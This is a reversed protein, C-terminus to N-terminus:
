RRRGPAAHGGARRARRGSTARKRRVCKGHRNRVQGRRCRVSPHPKLAPAEVPFAVPPVALLSVPAPLVLVSPLGGTTFTVPEGTSSGYGSAIQIRYAYTTGPQLGTVSFSEATPTLATGSVVIGYRTSAGAYVGLEFSYTASQGGPNVSGTLTASTVGVSSPAGTIAAPVPAAATTFSAQPGKAEGGELKKNLEHEDNAILRYRYTTAPRLGRAEMTTALPGYLSSAEASTSQAGPCAELDECAGYQFEYTTDANEPNLEGSLVVSSSSIFSASQGGFIRPPVLPTRVSATESTLLEPAKVNADEGALRAFLTANPRLGEAPTSLPVFPEQEGESKVNVIPVPKTVEGLGRTPGWEFWAQTSKVGWADVMGNIACNLTADTETDPGPKCALAGMVLEGISVNSYAQVVGGLSVFLHGASDFAMGYALQNEEGPITFNSILHGTSAHFFAGFPGTKGGGQGRQEFAAVALDGSADLAIGTVNAVEGGAERPTVPFSGAQQGAPNFALITWTQDCLAYVDGSADVAVADVKCPVALDGVHKGAADFEQVRGDDAVYLLGSPGGVALLDGVAQRFDFSGPEAPPPEGFPHQRPGACKVAAEEATCLNGKTTENVEEGIELVFQGEATFEQVRKGDKGPEGFVLEAVYVDGNVPDVTISSAGSAFQGAASGQVGPQCEGAEAQTCLDGGKKNVGRGFMLVFEGAPTLEQVRSHGRDVVYVNGSPAVALGELFEFGNAFSSSPVLKVPGAQAAPALALLALSLSLVVLVAPRAIRALTM